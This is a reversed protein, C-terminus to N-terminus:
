DDIEIIDGSHSFKVELGSNLKIEYGGREKAITGPFRQEISKRIAEPIVSEPLPKGKGDIDKWAGKGNFEIVFGCSLGVTYEVESFDIDKTAYLVECSPFTSKLFSKAASPLAEAKIPTDDMEAASCGLSAVVAALVIVFRKMTANKQNISQEIAFWMGITTNM